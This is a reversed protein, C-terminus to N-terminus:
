GGERAFVAVKVPKGSDASTKSLLYALRQIDQWLRCHAGIPECVAGGGDHLLCTSGAEEGYYPCWELNCILYNFADDGCGYEELGAQWLKKLKSM